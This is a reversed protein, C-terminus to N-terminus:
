RARAAAGGHLSRVGALGQRVPHPPVSARDRSGGGRPGTAARFRLRQYGRLQTQGPASNGGTQSLSAGIRIPPQAEAALPAALVALVVIFVVFRPPNVGPLTCRLCGPPLPRITGFRSSLGLRVIGTSSSPEGGGFRSCTFCRVCMPPLVLCWRRLRPPVPPASTPAARLASAACPPRSPGTISIAAATGSGPIRPNRRCDGLRISFFECAACFPNLQSAAGSPQM